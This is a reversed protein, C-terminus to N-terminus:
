FLIFLEIQHRLANAKANAKASAKANAKGKGTTASVVNHAADVYIYRINIYAANERQNQPSEELKDNQNEM